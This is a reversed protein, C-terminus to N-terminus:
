SLLIAKLDDAAKQMLPIENRLTQIPTRTILAHTSLCAVLAGADSFVPVSAGVMDDFWEENDLSYGASRIENLEGEFRNAEVITNRASEKKAIRGFVGLATKTDM